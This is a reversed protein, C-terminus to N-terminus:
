SVVTCSTMRRNIGATYLFWDSESISVVLVEALQDCRHSVPPADTVGDHFESCRSAMLNSLASRTIRSNRLTEGFPCSGLIHALTEVESHCRRCHNNDQTRGPVPREPAVNGTMKLADRWESRLGEVSIGRTVILGTSLECHMASGGVVLSWMDMPNLPSEYNIRCRLLNSIRVRRGNVMGGLADKLLYNRRLWHVLCKRKRKRILKPIIREEDVRELMADNRIRDTWKVREMRRWIGM